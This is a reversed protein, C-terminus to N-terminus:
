APKKNDWWLVAKRMAHSGDIRCLGGLLMLGHFSSLARLKSLIDYNSIDFRSFIATRSDRRSFCENYRSPLNGVQLIFIRPFNVFSFVSSRDRRIIALVNSIVEAATCRVQSLPLPPPPRM